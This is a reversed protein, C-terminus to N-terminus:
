ANVRTRYYIWDRVTNAPYELKEAIERLKMGAEKCRRALEVDADSAKANHHSQGYKAAM